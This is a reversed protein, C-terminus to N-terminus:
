KRSTEIEHEVLFHIVDTADMKTSDIAVQFLAGLEKANPALECHNFLACIQSVPRRELFNQLANYKELPIMEILQNMKGRDSSSYQIKIKLKTQLKSEQKDESSSTDIIYWNTVVDEHLLDQIDIEVHGKCRDKQLINNKM